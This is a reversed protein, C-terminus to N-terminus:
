SSKPFAFHSLFLEVWVMKPMFKRNFISNENWNLQARACSNPSAYSSQSYRKMLVHCFSEGLSWAVNMVSQQSYSLWWCLLGPWAFVVSRANGRKMAVLLGSSTACWSWCTFMPSYLLAELQSKWVVLAIPSNLIGNHLINM